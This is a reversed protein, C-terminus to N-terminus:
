KKGIKSRVVNKRTQKVKYAGVNEAGRLANQANNQESPGAPIAQFMEAMAPFQKLYEAAVEDTLNDNTFIKGSRFTPCNIIFGARLRYSCKKAM